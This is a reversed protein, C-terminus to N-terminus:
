LLEDGGTARPFVVGGLRWQRGMLAWPSSWGEAAQLTLVHWERRGRAGVFSGRGSTPWASGGARWLLAGLPRRRQGGGCRVTPRREATLLCGLRNGAVGLGEGAVEGALAAPSTV